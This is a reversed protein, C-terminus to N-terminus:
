TVKEKLGFTQEPLPEGLAEAYLELYANASRHWSHDAAMGNRQIKGWRRPEGHATLARRVAALFEDPTDDAYTFGNGTGSDIAEATAEIVTDGLGGVAHVVPVTGYALSYLQNLGCPEFRSPMLFLDAAAEIRHALSEDWGFRVAVRGPLRRSWALLADQYYTEGTGCVVMQAGMAALEPLLALLQDIGKQGTLRGIFGLLPPDGVADLELEERLAAKNVTKGQMRRRNYHAPLYPDRAPNWTQDIGNLIGRLAGSRHRLLGDLGAGFEPTQIERAYGPSVTTLRDAFVLGGKLYSLQGHFELAEQHWLHQPLGLTTLLAPEFLGQYALNHITFITVPKRPLSSLYVPILGTQWDNCHLIDPRWPLETRALALEVAAQCFLAFRQANDPWPKGLEDHYADGSREYWQPADVLWVPVRSAPLRGALIQVAGLPLHLQAIRTLKGAAAKASPYAPLLLRVDQGLNKLVKPLAGSVDGLGGTKALPYAESAAFLIRLPRSGAM